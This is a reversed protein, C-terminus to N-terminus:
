CVSMWRFWSSRLRTAINWASPDNTSACVILRAVSSPSDFRAMVASLITIATPVRDGDGGVTNTSPSSTYRLSSASFTSCRGRDSMM